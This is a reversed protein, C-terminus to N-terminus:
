GPPTEKTGVVVEHQTAFATNTTDPAQSWCPEAFVLLIIVSAIITSSGRM